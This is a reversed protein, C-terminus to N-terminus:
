LAYDIMAYVIAHYGTVGRQCSLFHSLDIKAFFYVPMTAVTRWLAHFSLAFDQANKFAIAPPYDVRRRNATQLLFRLDEGQFTVRRHARPQGM